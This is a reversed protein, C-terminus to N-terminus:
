CLGDFYNLTSKSAALSAMQAAITRIQARDVFANLCSSQGVEGAEIKSRRVRITFYKSGISLLNFSWFDLIKNSSRGNKSSFIDHADGLQVGVVWGDLSYSGDDYNVVEERVMANFIRTVCSTMNSIGMVWISWCCCDQPSERPWKCMLRTSKTTVEGPFGIVMIGVVGEVLLSNGRRTRRSPTNETVLLAM